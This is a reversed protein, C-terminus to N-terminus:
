GSKGKTANSGAVAEAKRKKDVNGAASAAAKVPVGLHCLVAAAYRRKDPGRAKKHCKACVDEDRGDDGKLHFHEDVCEKGCGDADCALVPVLKSPEACMLGGEFFHYHKRMRDLVVWEVVLGAHFTVADGAQVIFPPDGNKPSLQAKGEIILVREEKRYRLTFRPQKQSAFDEKSDWVPWDRAADKQDATVEAAPTLVHTEAPTLAFNRVM